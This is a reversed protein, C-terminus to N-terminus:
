WAGELSYVPGGDQGRDSAPLAASVTIGAAGLVSVVVLALVKWKLTM